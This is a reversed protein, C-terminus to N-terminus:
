KNRPGIKIVKVSLKFKQKKFYYVWGLDVWNCSYHM